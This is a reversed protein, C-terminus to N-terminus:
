LLPIKDKTTTSGRVFHDQELLRLGLPFGLWGCGMISIRQWNM